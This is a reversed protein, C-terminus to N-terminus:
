ACVRDPANDDRSDSAGEWNAFVHSWACQFSIHIVDMVASEKADLVSRLGEFSM